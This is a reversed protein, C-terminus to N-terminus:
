LLRDIDQDGSSGTPSPLGMAAWTSCPGAAARKVDWFWEAHPGFHKESQKIVHVKGFAGSDAMEKAKLYKPHLFARQMCCCSETARCAEIMKDAEQLTMCLPKECIVHKGAEAMAVTM